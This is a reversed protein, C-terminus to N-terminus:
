DPRGDPLGKITVCTQLEGRRVLLTINSAKDFQGLFKNFQEVSKIETTEGRAILALILDGPRLDARAVNGRIDEVILGGNLKLERKQENSLESVVIGLRNAAQEVPKPSKGNKALSKDEAIEGVVVSLDRAAGKRWIQM